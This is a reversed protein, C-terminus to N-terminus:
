TDTLRGRNVVCHVECTFLHKGFLASAFRDDQDAITLVGGALDTEGFRHNCCVAAIGHDVRDGISDATKKSDAPRATRLGQLLIRGFRSAGHIENASPAIERAYKRLDRLLEPRLVVHCVRWTVGRSVSFEVSNADDSSIRTVFHFRACSVVSRFGWQLPPRHGGTKSLRRYRIVSDFCM